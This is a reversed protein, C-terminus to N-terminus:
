SQSSRKQRVNFEAGAAGETKEPASREGLLQGLARGLELQGGDGQEIAIADISRLTKGDGAALVPDPRDDTGIECHFVARNLGDQDFVTDAVLIQTGEQRLGVQPAFFSAAEDAVRLQLFKGGPQDRKKGLRRM